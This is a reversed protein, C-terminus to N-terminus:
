RMIIYESVQLATSTKEFGKLSNRALMGRRSLAKYVLFDEMKHNEIKGRAAAGKFPAIPLNTFINIYETFIDTRIALNSLPLRLESPL